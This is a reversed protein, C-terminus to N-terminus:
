PAPRSSRPSSGRRCAWRTSGAPMGAPVAPLALGTSSVNTAEAVEEAGLWHALLDPMLLMRQVTDLRGAERDAMLQYITM